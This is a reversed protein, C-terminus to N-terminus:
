ISRMVLERILYAIAVAEVTIVSLMIVARTRYGGIHDHYDKAAEDLAKARENAEAIKAEIDAKVKDDIMANYRTEMLRKLMRRSKKAAKDNM